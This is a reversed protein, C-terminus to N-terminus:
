HIMRGSVRPGRALGQGDRRNRVEEYVGVTGQIMADWSLPMVTARAQRGMERRRDPDELCAEMREALEEVADCRSILFGNKGNVLLESASGSEVSALVPLGSAMAELIVLGSSEYISPLIFADCAAFYRWIEPQPGAFRVQGQLGLSRVRDDFEAQEGVSDGVVLLYTGLGRIRHLAELVFGLGKLKFGNGAFLFIPAGVPIGHAERVIPRWPVSHRPSFQEADVANPVIRIRSEARGYWEVLERAVKASVAIAYNRARSGLNYRFVRDLLWYPTMFRGSLHLSGRGRLEMVTHIGAIPVSHCTAIEGPYLSPIHLHVLDFAEQRLCWGSTLFFSLYRTYWRSGPTPVTHFRISTPGAPVPNSMFVHVEHETSLREALEVVCRHIGKLRDYGHTVLAIKM